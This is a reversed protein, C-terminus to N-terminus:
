RTLQAADPWAIRLCAPTGNLRTPDRGPPPVTATEVETGGSARYFHQASTNQQLVWLYMANGSAQDTIAQAARALLKTGVGTRRQDSYVHLNDVLSGWRPDKNFEV